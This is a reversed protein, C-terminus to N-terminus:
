FRRKWSIRFRLPLRQKSSQKSSLLYFQSEVMKKVLEEFKVKEEWKLEKRAKQPNAVLPIKEVPRVFRPDITIFDKFDLGVSSYAERCFDEVSHLVGSGLVYDDARDKQLMLCMAEVFDPACSWDRQADLNGLSIKGNKVIPEGEENLEKSNQIGLKVCAAGYAIKSTVFNLPRRPSEHNYLIGCCIFLKYKERYIKATQQAFLKAVAYPNNPNTPTSEDQPCSPPQGFIESSSAQFIKCDPKYLRIADYIRQPALGNVHTTLIPNKWALKISSVAALNYIEDPQYKKVLKDFVEPDIMEGQVFEFKEINNPTKRDFGIVKYNKKILLEALYSGDQGCAGTILAIKNM